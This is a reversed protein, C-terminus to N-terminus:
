AQANPLRMWASLPDNMLAQIWTSGLGSLGGKVMAVAESLVRGRLTNITPAPLDLV